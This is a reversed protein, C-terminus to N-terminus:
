AREAIAFLSPALGIEVCPLRELRRGILSGIGAQRGRWGTLSVSIPRFGGRQLLVRVSNFSFNYIHTHPLAQRRYAPKNRALLPMVVQGVPSKKLVWYKLHFYDASPVSMAFIGDERLWTAMSRMAAIPDCMHELTEFATIYSFQGDSFPADRMAGSHVMSGEGWAEKASSAYSPSLEVGHPRVGDRAAITGFEGTQCGFDLLQDSAQVPRCGKIADWHLQFESLRSVVIDDHSRGGTLEVISEATESGYLDALYADTVDSDVYLTRCGRCRVFVYNDEPLVPRGYRREITEVAVVPNDSRGCVYCRRSTTRSASQYM